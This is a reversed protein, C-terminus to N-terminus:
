HFHGQNAHVEAVKERAEAWTLCERRLRAWVGTGGGLQWLKGEKIFYQSVQHHAHEQEREGAGFNIEMLMDIVQLYIPEDKFWEQLAMTGKPVPMVLYTSGEIGVMFLNNVIGLQAEWDPSLIWESSDGHVKLKGKDARSLVDVVTNETGKVHEARVIQYGM